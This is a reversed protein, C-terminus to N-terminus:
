INKKGMLTLTYRTNWGVGTLAHRVIKPNAFSSWTRLHFSALGVFGVFSAWLAQISDSSLAMKIAPFFPSCTHFGSGLPRANELCFTIKIILISMFTAISAQPWLPKALRPSFIIAAIYNSQHCPFHDLSESDNQIQKISCQPKLPQTLLLCPFQPTFGEQLQMKTLAQQNGHLDLTMGSPDHVNFKAFSASPILCSFSHREHPVTKALPYMMSHRSYSKFNEM